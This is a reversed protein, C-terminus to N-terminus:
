LRLLVTTLYVNKGLKVGTLKNSLEYHIGLEYIVNMVETKSGAILDIGTKKEDIKWFTKGELMSEVKRVLRAVKVKDGRFQIIAEKYGGAERSCQTCTTKSVPIEFDRNQRVEVGEVEFILDANIDMTKKGIEFTVKGLSLPYQTKVSKEVFQMVIGTEFPVWDAAIKIKGCKACFVAEFERLSYLKRQSFCSACFAGIFQRSESQQSGCSPCVKM